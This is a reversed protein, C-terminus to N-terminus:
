TRPTSSKTPWRGSAPWRGASAARDRRRDARRAGASAAAADRQLPPAAGFRQGRPLHAVAARRRRRAAPRIGGPLRHPLAARPHRRRGRGAGAGRGRPAPRLLSPLLALPLNDVCYYGLDEVAHIAQSKGAGSLGTIVLFDARSPRTGLRPRGRKVGRRGGDIDDGDDADELGAGVRELRQDLADVLARAAHVGRARLLQNRAAVEVLIAVSRGPAVPMTVKPIQLGLLDHHADDLGLRDYDRATDWRQLEVVFEVRKSSRTSAVGFLDRINILGLGRIEMFYRTPGPSTGIIVTEARRRVEVSDDAVLRHGRTVLDLACESKGIGSEGVLLVGLGLVDMLVGHVVERSALYDELIATLKGIAVPTSVSARLLPVGAADAAFAVEPPLPLTSTALVCPIGSAFSRALAELRAAPALGQLYRVESDGYILM